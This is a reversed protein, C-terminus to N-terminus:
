SVNYDDTLSLHWQLVNKGILSWWTKKKAAPARPPHPYQPSNEQKFQLINHSKSICTKILENM